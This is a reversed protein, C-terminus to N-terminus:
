AQHAQRFMICVICLKGLSDKMQCLEDVIKSLDLAPSIYVTSIQTSAQM